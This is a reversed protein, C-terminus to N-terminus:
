ELIIEVNSKKNKRREKFLLENRTQQEVSNLGISHRRRNISELNSKNPDHHWVNYYPYNGYKHKGWRAMFDNLAGFQYAPIFGNSVNKLLKDNIDKRPSSYYHILMFYTRKDELVSPGRSKLFKKGATDEDWNGIGILREGPFGYRDIITDIVRFQRKNNKLWQLGYITHRFLFFGDNVRRTFKQDITFLSDIQRSLKLNISSMYVARLSDYNNVTRKTTSFLLSKKTIDNLNIVWFPVGQKFCRSLWKDAKLSDNVYCCIQLAKICHKAYIFEFDNYISDLRSIALRHNNAIIDEDIRNFTKQYAIFNQGFTQGISVSLLCVLVYKM